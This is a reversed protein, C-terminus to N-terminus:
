RTSWPSTVTPITSSPAPSSVRARSASPITTPCCSPRPTPHIGTTPRPSRTSSRPIAKRADVGVETLERRSTISNGLATYRIDRSYGLPTVATSYSFALGNKWAIRRLPNLESFREDGFFPVIPDLRYPVGKMECLALVKRVYPSAPGGIITAPSPLTTM